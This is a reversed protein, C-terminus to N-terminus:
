KKPPRIEWIRGPMVTFKSIPKGDVHAEFRSGVNSYHKKRNGTNDLTDRLSLTRDQTVWYIGVEKGSRNYMWFTCSAGLNSRLRELHTVKLDPRLAILKEVAASSVGSDKVLILSKLSPAKGFAMFTKDGGRWDEGVLVNDIETPQLRGRFHRGFNMIGGHRYIEILATRERDSIRRSHLATGLVQPIQLNSQGALALIRELHYARPLEKSITVAQWHMPKGGIAQTLELTVKKGQYEDLGFLLPAAWDQWFQKIPMKRPKIRREGVRLVVADPGPSQGTPLSVHVALWKDAPAITMERSFILPQGQARIMTLFRGAGSRRPTNQPKYLDSTRTYVGRKDLKLKWGPSAALVGGAQLRVQEQLGAPDLELQPDLWDLKDRINLPDAGRPRNDHAPDAQLVLHRPGAPPLGLSVRGTDVTKKSGVLLPSEYASKGNTSGVYVRARACGGAGVIRDLGIRSRFAKAFKPLPFHLESYAHVAFGWAYKDAGSRLPRGASNRNTYWPILPPSVTAAPPVRDLPVQEPAFSWRMCISKFPVPLVDLSWVPQIVHHWTKSSGEAGKTTARQSRAHNISASHREWEATAKAFQAKLQGSRKQFDTELRKFKQRERAVSDAREKQRQANLRARETQLARARTKRLQAQKRRFAKLAAARKDPKEAALRKVMDADASKLERDIKGRKETFLDADKKKQQDIRRQLDAQAKTYSERAAKRQKELEGSQRSYEARARDFKGTQEKMGKELRALHEKVRQLHELAATRHDESAYPLARFRLESGTAILGGTTEFRVMRSRCAPNLIALERYYARWPDIRPLHIEAVDSIRVERTGNNLLLVVSEKGWRLHVFVQRRGDLYFLTGGQLRRRSYPGFVVREIYGPLVRVRAPSGRVPEGPPETPTVLLHAPVYPGEGESAGEIRGVLRDGGVFEIYGHCRNDSRWPKLNNDRLWRLPRKADFLATNDLRPAVPHGGWGSVKDGELRTGDVFVAEYRAASKARAVPAALLLVALFFVYKPISLRTM